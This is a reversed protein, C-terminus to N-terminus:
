DRGQWLQCFIRSLPSSRRMFRWCMWKALDACFMPDKGLKCRFCLKPEGSASLSCGQESRM